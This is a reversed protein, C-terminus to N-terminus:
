WHYKYEARPGSRAVFYSYQLSSKIFKYLLFQLALFTGTTTSIAQYVANITTFGPTILATNQPM